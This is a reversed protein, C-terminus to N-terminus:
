ELAREARQRSVRIEAATRAPASALRALVRATLAGSDDGLATVAEELLPAGRQVDDGFSVGVGSLGLAARALANHDGSARALSAVERFADFTRPRAGARYQAEAMALLIECRRHSDDPAYQQCLAAAREYHEAAEEWAYRVDAARGARLCLEVARRWDAVPVGGVFHHALEAAHLGSDGALRRELAEGMRAHLRVREAPELGAYVVERLMPHAFRYCDLEDTSAVIRARAAEELIGGVEASSIQAVEALLDSELRPSAVSAVALLELVRPRQAGLRVRIADRITSPVRVSRAARSSVAHRALEHLYLPNGDCQDCIRGTSESDLSPAALAVVRQSDERSLGSLEVRASHSERALAGLAAGLDADTDEQPRHTVLITLPANRIRAALFELMRLSAPDADHLDEVLLVLPRRHACEVLARTAANLLRFQGAAETLPAPSESGTGPDADDVLLELEPERARRASLALAADPDRDLERLIEIWPWYAPVGEGRHCRGVLALAGQEEADLLVEEALRSKGVGAEGSVVALSGRGGLGRRVLACLQLREKARGFLRIAAPLEPPRELNPSAGVARALVPRLAAVMSATLEDQLALPDGAAGDFNRAWLHHGTEADILQVSVRLRTDSRRVSGEVLFRAGLERGLRRLDVARGRRAFATTRAIVALDPLSALRTTLDEVLGDAFGSELEGGGLVDFPLVALAPTTRSAPRAARAPEVPTPRAAALLRHVRVPEPYNHLRQEGLDEQAVRLKRSVLDHVHGSICIEGSQALRELRAAVNM